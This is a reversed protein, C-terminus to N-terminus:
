PTAEHIECASLQIRLRQRARHLRTDVASETTGLLAAIQRYSWRECHKLLLIEADRGPLRLLAERVLQRQEELLLWALPDSDSASRFATATLRGYRHLCARNRAQQRRYRISRIVAVRYLWPVVRTPDAIPSRQQLAAALVEQLVEDVAQSEGTPGPDRQPALTRKGGIRSGLGRHFPVLREHTDAPEFREHEGVYNGTPSLDQM